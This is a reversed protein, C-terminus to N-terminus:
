GNGDEKVEIIVYTGDNPCRARYKEVGDEVDYSIKRFITEQKELEELAQWWKYKCRPCTIEIKESM